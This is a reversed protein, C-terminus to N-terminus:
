VSADTHAGAESVRQAFRGLGEEREPSEASPDLKKRGRLLERLGGLKEGRAKM